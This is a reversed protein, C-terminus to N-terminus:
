TQFNQRSFKRQSELWENIQENTYGRDCLLLSIKDDMDALAASIVTILLQNQTHRFAKVDSITKAVLYITVCGIIFIATIGYWILDLTSMMNKVECVALIWELGSNSLTV